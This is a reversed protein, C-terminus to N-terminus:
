WGGGGGGGGGGGSFGGSFGSGSSSSNVTTSHTITTGATATLAHMASAFEHARFAGIGIYWTPASVDDFEYYRSLENLWSKELGFLTAYPLLKEYLKVVGAHSTDAGKVSQLFNLRDAEAMSIYLKLGELYRSYELGKETHEEYKAIDLAAILITFFIVFGILFVPLPLWDAGAYPIYSEDPLIISLLFTAISIVMWAIDLATILTSNPGKSEAPEKSKETKEPTYLAKTRLQAKTDTTFDQALKQLTSTATRTKIDIAQGRSIANSSGSLIQLVKIQEPSLGDIKLVHVQWSPKKKGFAGTTETKVIEVKHTVALELLTAVKPNGNMGKGIYNEAMEAVTFGRPATYEPKVFLNKYYQRKAKVRHSAVCTIIILAVGLILFIAFIIMLLYSTAPAHVTFTGADFAMAFTLTEYASLKTATFTIVNGDKTTKCRNSGSEGYRGVYCVTEGTFNGAIDSSLHVRATVKDFRQQWDSGNADWYLEQWSDNDNSQDLILNEFEYDLTYVQRGHVYKDADGIQVLFYGDESAVHAVPEPEGNRRVDIALHSTSAMTINQGDNNTFPIVRNIGHNQDTDPFIATIQEQVRMRSTGDADRSLYYDVTFDEFYFSQTSVASASIPAFIVSVLALFGAFLYRMYQSKRHHTIYHSSLTM